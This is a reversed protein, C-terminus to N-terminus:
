ENRSFYYKCIYDLSSSMTEGEFLESDRIWRHWKRSIRIQVTDRRKRDFRQSAGKIEKKADQKETDSYEKKNKTSM